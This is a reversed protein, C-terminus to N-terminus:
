RPRRRRCSRTTSARSSWCRAPIDDVFHVPSRHRYREAAEPYPGILRRSYHSEFKHSDVELLELDGIGYLTIGAAFVDRFALAALTTYGGASGGEIALRDADVDGRDVLFRAAAVSDDVDVVGWLGDLRRRYARGYGTSGGYDVDVIAIGRSTFLQKSLDFATSANSTPGGHTLVILPPKEDDPGVFEPNTPPYYIAHAILGDTTSFEISEPQSIFTPDVATTSARRLVGSPALSLPDFRAVIAPDGPAGALAVITTPGVRVSELETFLTEVEVIRRGPEVRFNAVVFVSLVDDM